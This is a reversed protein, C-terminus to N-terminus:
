TTPACPRNIACGSIERTSRLVSMDFSIWTCAACAPVSPVDSDSCPASFMWPWSTSVAEAGIRGKRQVM